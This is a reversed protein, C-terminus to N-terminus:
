SRKRLRGIAREAGSIPLIRPSRTRWPHDIAMSSASPSRSPKRTPVFGSATTAATVRNNANQRPKEHIPIRTPTRTLAGSFTWIKAKVSTKGNVKVLLAKTAVAVM